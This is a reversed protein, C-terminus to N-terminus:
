GEATRLYGPQESPHDHTTCSTFDGVLPDAGFTQVLSRWITGELDPFYFCVSVLVRPCIKGDFHYPRTADQKYHGEVAVGRVPQVVEDVGREVGLDCADLDAWQGRRRIM